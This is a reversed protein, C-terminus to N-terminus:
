RGIAADASVRPLGPALCADVHAFFANRSAASKATVTVYSAGISLAFAAHVEDHAVVDGGYVDAKLAAVVLHPELFGRRAAARQEARARPYWRRQMTVFSRADAFALVILAANRALVEPVPQYCRKGATDWLQLRLREDDPTKPYYDHVSVGITRERAASYRRALQSAILTTKGVRSAGVFAIRYRDVDDM